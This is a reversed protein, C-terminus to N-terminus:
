TATSSLMLRVRQGNSSLLKRCSGAYPPRGFDVVEVSRNVRSRSRIVTEGCKVYTVGGARKMRLEPPRDIRIERPTKTANATASQRGEAAKAWAVAEIAPM